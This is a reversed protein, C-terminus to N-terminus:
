LLLLLSTLLVVVVVVVCAHLSLAVAVARRTGPGRRILERSPAHSPPLITQILMDGNCSMMAQRFHAEARSIWVVVLLLHANASKAALQRHAKAQCVSLSVSASIFEHVDSKSSIRCLWL